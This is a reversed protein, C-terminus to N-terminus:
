DLIDHSFHKFDSRRCNEIYYRIHADNTIVKSKSTKTQLYSLLDNTFGGYRWKALLLLPHEDLLAVSFGYKWLTKLIDIFRAEDQMRNKMFFASVVSKKSIEQAGGLSVLLDV